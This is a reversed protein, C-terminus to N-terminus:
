LEDRLSQEYTQTERPIKKENDKKEMCTMSTLSFLNELSINNEFKLSLNVFNSKNIKNALYSKENILHHVIDNLQESTKILLSFNSNRAYGALFSKKRVANVDITDMTQLNQAQIHDATGVFGGVGSLGYVRLNVLTINHLDTHAALGVLSGVISSGTIDFNELTLNELVNHNDEDYGCRGFLGVSNEDRRNIFLNKIRYGNGDFNGSFSKSTAANYNNYFDITNGGGLPKFGKGNNWTKTITADIDQSLVYNSDLHTNINQLDYVDNILAYIKIKAARVSSAM